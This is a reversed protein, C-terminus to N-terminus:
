KAAEERKANFEAIKRKMDESKDREDAANDKDNEFKKFTDYLKCIRKSIRFFQSGIKEQITYWYSVQVFRKRFILMMYFGKMGYNKLDRHKKEVEVLTRIQRDIMRDHQTILVINWFYHRHKSFFNIWAMRSNSDKSGFGTRPNFPIQAEDIFILGQGEGKKPDFHRQAYDMFFAPDLKLTDIYVFEGKHKKPDVNIEFNAIVPMGRRLARDINDAATYSKGSGPTGTYITIM